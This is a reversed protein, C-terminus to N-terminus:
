AAGRQHTTQYEITADYIEAALLGQPSGKWEVCVQADTSEAFVDLAARKRYGTGGAPLQTEAMLTTGDGRLLRVYWGTTKYDILLRHLQAAHSPASLRALRSHWKALIAAQTGNGLDIGTTAAEPQVIKEIYALSKGDWVARKRTFSVFLMPQNLMAASSFKTWARRKEDYIACFQAPNARKGITLIICDPDLTMVSTSIAALALDTPTSATGWGYTAAVAGALSTSVPQSVDVLQAGDWWYYGNDSLFYCGDNRSVVSHPDVCGLDAAFRQLVFNSPGSGSLLWLSRRKLIGLQKGVATLAIIGDDADSGVKILNTLGSVPDQWDAATITTPGGPRTYYLNTTGTNTTGDFSGGGSFLREAFVALDSACRPAVAAAYATPAAAGGAWRLLQTADQYVKDDLRVYRRTFADYSTAPLATVTGTDSDIHYPVTTGVLNTIAEKGRVMVGDICDNTIAAPFPHVTDIPGRMVLKGRRALLNEVLPAQADGVYDPAAETNWGEYAPRIREARLAM